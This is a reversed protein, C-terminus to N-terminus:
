FVALDVVTMKLDRIRIPDLYIDRGAKETAKKNLTGARKENHEELLAMIPVEFFLEEDTLDTLKQPGQYLLADDLPVHEDPDAIFIQVIRRTMVAKGKVIKQLSSDKDPAVLRVDVEENMIWDSLHEKAWEYARTKGCRRPMANITTSFSDFDGTYTNSTALTKAMAPLENISYDGTSM